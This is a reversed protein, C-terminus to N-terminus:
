DALPHGPWRAADPWPATEDPGDVPEADFWSCCPYIHPTGPDAYCDSCPRAVHPTRCEASHEFYWGRCCTVVRVQIPTLRIPTGSLAAGCPNPLATM